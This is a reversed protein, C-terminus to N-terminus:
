LGGAIKELLILETDKNDVSLVFNAASTSSRNKITLTTIKENSFEKIVGSPIVLFQTVQNIYILLDSVGENIITMNTFPCYGSTNEIERFNFFEEESANLEKVFTFYKKEGIKVM